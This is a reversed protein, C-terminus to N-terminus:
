PILNPDDCVKNNPPPPKNPLNEIQTMEQTSLEFDFINLNDKMHQINKTRPNVVLGQQIEWRLIVQAVTKNHNAAIQIIDPQALIPIPWKTKNFAMHDPAGLPSYGNYTINLKQCYSVLSYEAWYPHFEVQNVAPISSNLAFIDLLHKEEFNSVGIARAQGNQFILELAKWTQQRCDRDDICNPGSVNQGPIGPWHILLLDVYDTQLTALVEDFHSLTENFGYPNDVKSTVFISKRPIGSAKIANGIGTQDGYSLSTDIRRGGVSLWQAVAQEAVSDGWYEGGNGSEDGYGGTGLGVVPMQTNPHAANQLTITPVSAMTFCGYCIVLLLTTLM